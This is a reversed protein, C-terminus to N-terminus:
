LSILASPAFPFSFLTLYECSAGYLLEKNRGMELQGVIEAYRDKVWKGAEHKRRM